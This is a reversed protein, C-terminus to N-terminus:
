FYFLKTNYYYFNRTKIVPFAYFYSTIDDSSANDKFMKGEFGSTTCKHWKDM